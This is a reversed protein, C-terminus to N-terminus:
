RKMKHVHNKIIGMTDGGHIRRGWTNRDNGAHRRHRDASASQIKWIIWQAKAKM